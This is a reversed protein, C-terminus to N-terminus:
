NNLIYITLRKTIFPVTDSGLSENMGVQNKQMLKALGLYLNQEEYKIIEERQSNNRLEDFSTYDITYENQYIQIYKNFWNNIAELRDNKNDMCLIEFLDKKIKILNM